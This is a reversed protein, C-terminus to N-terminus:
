PARGAFASRGPSAQLAFCPTGVRREPLGARLTRKSAGACTEAKLRHPNYGSGPLTLLGQEGSGPSKRTGECPYSRECSLFRVNCVFYDTAPLRYVTAPRD